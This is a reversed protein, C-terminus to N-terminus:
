ESPIMKEQDVLMQGYQEVSYKWPNPNKFANEKVHTRSQVVRDISSRTNNQSALDINRITHPCDVRFVRTKKSNETVKNAIGSEDKEMKDRLELMKIEQLSMSFNELTERIAEDLLLHLFDRDVIDDDEENETRKSM